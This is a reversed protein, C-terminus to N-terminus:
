LTSREELVEGCARCEVTHGSECTWVRWDTLDARDYGCSPCSDEVIRVLKKIFQGEGPVRGIEVATILEVDPEAPDPMPLLGRHKARDLADVRSISTDTEPDLYDLFDARLCSECRSPYTSIHSNEAPLYGTEGCGSCEREELEADDPFGDPNLPLANM